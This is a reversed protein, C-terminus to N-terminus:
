GPSHTPNELEESTTDIPGPSELQRALEEGVVSAGLANLHTDWMPNYPIRGHNEVAAVLSSTLDIFRIGHRRCAQAIFEPLNTPIWISVKDTPDVTLRSHLVRGKCPMYALWAEVGHREGFDRYGRLFSDLQNRVPAGLDVPRPAVQSITVPIPGRSSQFYQVLPKTRESGYVPRVPTLWADSIAQLFSSQPQLRRYGRNGT